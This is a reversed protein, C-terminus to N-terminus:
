SDNEAPSASGKASEVAAVIAERVSWGKRWDIVPCILRKLSRLDHSILHM